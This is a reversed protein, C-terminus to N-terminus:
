NGKFQYSDCKKLIKDFLTNNELPFLAIENIPLLSNSPMGPM